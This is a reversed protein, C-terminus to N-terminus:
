DMGAAACVAQRSIIFDLGFGQLRMELCPDLNVGSISGPRAIAECVCHPQDASLYIILTSGTRNGSNSLLVSLWHKWISKATM